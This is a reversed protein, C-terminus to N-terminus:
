YNGTVLTCSIRRMLDRSGRKWDHIIFSGNPRIERTLSTVIKSDAQELLWALGEKTTVFAPSIHFPILTNQKM